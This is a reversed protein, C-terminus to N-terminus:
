TSKDRGLVTKYKIKFIDISNRYIKVSWASDMGVYVLYQGEKGYIEEKENWGALKTVANMIDHIAPMKELGYKKLVNKGKYQVHFSIRKKNNKIIGFPWIGLRELMSGHKRSM